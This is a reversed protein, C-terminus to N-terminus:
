VALCQQSSVLRLFLSSGGLNTAVWTRHQHGAQEHEMAGISHLLIRDSHARSIADNMGLIVWVLKPYGVLIRQLGYAIIVLSIM